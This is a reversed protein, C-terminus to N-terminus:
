SEVVISGTMNAAHASCHYPYAGPNAFTFSYNAGKALAKSNLSPVQSHAPHSDTNIYHEVNDDNVWTVITGPSIRMNMPQFKLNSLKVTVAPQNRMDQYGSLLGSDIAFQFSGDHCSRDPWCGKYNVTYVGNPAALDMKRRLALKNADVTTGGTGYDKGDKNIEITSNSALDFNFDIVVDVPAAALTSAHAPTSSEFHAGKVPTAFVTKQKSDTQQTHAATLHKPKADEGNRQWVYWGTGGIIGIVVLALLLGPLSVGRQDKKM